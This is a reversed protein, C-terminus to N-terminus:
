KRKSFRLVLHKISGLTSTLLPLAGEAETRYESFTKSGARASLSVLRPGHVVGGLGSVSQLKVAVM